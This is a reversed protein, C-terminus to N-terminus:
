CFHCCIGEKTNATGMLDLEDLLAKREPKVKGAAFQVHQQNVWKGLSLSNPFRLHGYTKKFCKLGKYKELWQQEYQDEFRWTFFIEDLLGMRDKKLAGKKLSDRQRHVWNALSRDKKYFRPVDCHGHDQCFALLGKYSHDWKLNHKSSFLLNYKKSWQNGWLGDFSWKFGIEDSWDKRFLTRM